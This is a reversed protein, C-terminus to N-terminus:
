EHGSAQALLVGTVVDAQLPLVASCWSVRCSSDQDYSSMCSSMCRVWFRNLKPGSRIGLLTATDEVVIWPSQHVTWRRVEDRAAQNGAKIVCTFNVLLSGPQM